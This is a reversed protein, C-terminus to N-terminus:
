QFRESLASAAAIADDGPARSPTSIVTEVEMEM